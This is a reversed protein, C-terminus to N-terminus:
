YVPTGYANDLRWPAEQGTRDEDHRPVISNAKSFSTRPRRARPERRRRACSSAPPHTTAADALPMSSTPRATANVDLAPVGSGGQTAFHLVFRATRYKRLEGFGSAQLDCSRITQIERPWSRSCLCFRVYVRSSDYGPKQGGRGLPM